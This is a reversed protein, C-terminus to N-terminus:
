ERLLKNNLSVWKSDVIEFQSCNNAFATKSLDHLHALSVGLTDISEFGYAFCMDHITPLDCMGKRFTEHEGAYRTREDHWELETELRFLLQIKHERAYATGAKDCKVNQDTQYLNTL